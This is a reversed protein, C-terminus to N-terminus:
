SASNPAFSVAVRQAVGADLLRHLIYLRRYANPRAIMDADFDTYPENTTPPARRHAPTARTEAPVETQEHPPQIECVSLM